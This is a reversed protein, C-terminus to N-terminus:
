DAGGHGMWREKLRRACEACIYTESGDVFKVHFEQGTGGCLPCPLWKIPTIRELVVFPKGFPKAEGSGVSGVFCVAPSLPIGGENEEEVSNKAGGGGKGLQKNQQTQQTHQTFRRWAQVGKTTLVYGKSTRSVLGLAKLQAIKNRIWSPNHGTQNALETSTAPGSLLIEMVSKLVDSEKVESSFAAYEEETLAGCGRWAIYEPLELMDIIKEMFEDALRVHEERVELRKGDPTSFTLVAFAAALKLLVFFTDEHIVPIDPSAYNRKKEEFCERAKNIAEKTFTIDEPRLSWAWLVLKRFLQLFQLDDKGETIAKVMEGESVDGACFPILLDWRTIDVADKFCELDRLAMCRFPYAAMEKRPNADAIIRTRAWAKATVRRRVEVCLKVLAERLTAMDDPPFKHLAEVVLITKDAEVLAGWIIMPQDPEITYSLGTRSSTEGIAHKGLGLKEHLYCGTRGKGTRPDGFFLVRLVGARREDNIIIWTPSVWALMGALKAEGRGAIRPNNKEALRLFDELAGHGGFYSRLEEVEKAALSFDKFVGDLPETKLGLLEVNATLPNVALYGTIQVDKEKTVEDLLYARCGRATSDETKELFERLNIIYFLAMPQVPSASVRRHKCEGVNQLRFLEIAKARVRGENGRLALAEFLALPEERLNIEGEVGCEECRVLYKTYAAKVPSEGSIFGEVSVLRGIHEARLNSFSIPLPAGQGNEAYIYSGCKPCFRWGLEVSALCRPCFNAGEGREGATQKTPDTPHM